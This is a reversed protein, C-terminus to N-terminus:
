HSMEDLQLRSKDWLNLQITQDMNYFKMGMTTVSSDNMKTEYKLIM